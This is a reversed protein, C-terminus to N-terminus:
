QGKQIRDRHALDLYLLMFVGTEADVGLLAILGVWVAVSMNYDLLYLLWIAGIASFPVALLIIWTKTLSGTNMYLLLFVLFLTFPVVVILRDKVREMYEYQGSWLISYGAPLQVQTAVARKADHVYRGLDRGKVDVFVFGALFGEENKIMSPGTTVQMRAVQSIPIQAGSPTAILVSGLATLDDRFSRAYRVNIPYRERGEITTSITMGGIATEIMDNVADVSLNYRAAEVRDVEFDLYYGGSVREYFASRTGEVSKLAKEIQLGVQEIVELTPGMVKVGVPTRIGTTIMDIRTRIPFLWANAYSPIQVKSDMENILEEWTIRREEPWLIELPGQLPEPVWNSYWRQVTVKRWEKEPKLTVTTEVMSLPAPDTATEAKGIKGFVTQVEPFQMLMRDQIQLYKTAETVSIGPLTIPMYLLTGENLPPMFESGLQQYVPVTLALMLVSAGIIVWKHNLAFRLAPHYLRMLPSSIPHTDEDHFKGIFVANAMRALARPKFSFERTRMLVLRLAPDLTIALVAAIAM